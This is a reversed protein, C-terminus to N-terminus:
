KALRLRMDQIIASQEAIIVEAQLVSIANCKSKKADQKLTEICSEANLLANYMVTEYDSVLDDGLGLVEQIETLTDKILRKHEYKM